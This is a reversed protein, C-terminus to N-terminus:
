LATSYTHLTSTDYSPPQINPLVNAEHQSSVQSIQKRKLNEQKLARRLLLSMIVVSTFVTSKKVCFIVFSLFHPFIASCPPFCRRTRCCICRNVSTKYQIFHYFQFSSRLTLYIRALSFQSADLHM